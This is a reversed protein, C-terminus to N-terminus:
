RLALHLTLTFWCPPCGAPLLSAETTTENLTHIIQKIDHLSLLPNFGTIKQTLDNILNILDYLDPDVPERLKKLSKHAESKLNELINEFYLEESFNLKLSLISPLNTLLWLRLQKWNNTPQFLMPKASVHAYEQDLKPNSDQLIYDPYGIHEKIAM